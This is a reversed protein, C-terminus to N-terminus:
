KVDFLLQSFFFKMSQYDKETNSMIFFVLHKLKLYIDHLCVHRGLMHRPDLHYEVRPPSDKLKQKIDYKTFSHIWVYNNFIQKLNM